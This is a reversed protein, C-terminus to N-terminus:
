NTAMSQDSLLSGTSRSLNYSSTTPSVPPRFMNANLTTPAGPGEFTFSGPMHFQSGYAM